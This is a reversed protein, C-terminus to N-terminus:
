RRDGHQHDTQGQGRELLTRALLELDVERAIESDTHLIHFREHRRDRARGQLADAREHAAAGLLERADLEEGSGNKRAVRRRVGLVQDHHGEGARRATPPEDERSGLPTSPRM